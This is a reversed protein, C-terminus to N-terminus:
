AFLGKFFLVLSDILRKWWGAEAVEDLAVLERSAIIGDNLSINVTGLAAYKIVPAEIFSAYSISPKINKYTGRPVTVYLDEKLGLNLKDQQGKWVKADSLVANAEYLRHTRFFRFGYNLLKKSEQERARESDTGLVVSILRMDERLASAVLCYGASETHGTKIGDVTEDHWLLKNRNYQTINNYVFKKESYMKYGEPYDRILARALKALDRPTTYHEEDPLGTSNVFHSSTMGLRAAHQNMLSAFTEESGAVHEAIAVTADNGSQIIIGKLLDEVSVQTNVEIFMRSGPMRWAKNSITVKDELHINGARLEHDVVYASMMKTLSAPEMRQDGNLEAVVQGSHFDQLVYGKAALQPAAPTAHPAANILSSIILLFFVSVFQFISNIRIMIKTPNDMICLAM